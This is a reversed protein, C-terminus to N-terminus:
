GQFQKDESKHVLLEALSECARRELKTASACNSKEDVTFYFNIYLINTEIIILSFFKENGVDIAKKKTIDREVHYQESLIPESYQISSLFELKVSNHAKVQIVKPPTKYIISVVIIKNSNSLPVFGSVLTYDHNVGDV